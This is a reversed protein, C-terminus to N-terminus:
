TTDKDGVSFEEDIIRPVSPNIVVSEEFQHSSTTVLSHEFLVAMIQVVIIGLSVIRSVSRITKHQFIM